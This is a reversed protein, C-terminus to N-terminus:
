MSRQADGAFTPGLHSTDPDLDSQAARDVLPTEGHGLMAPGGGVHRPFTEIWEATGLDLRADGLPSLYRYSLPNWRGFAGPSWDWPHRGARM